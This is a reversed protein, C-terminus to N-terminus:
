AGHTKRVRDTALRHIDARVMEETQRVKELQLAQRRSAMEHAVAEADAADIDCSRVDMERLSKSSVAAERLVQGCDRGFSNCSVNLSRLTTNEVAVGAIARASDIGLENSSIDLDLLTVNERVGGLITEGGADGLRNLRLSLSTLTRSVALADGIAEAGASRIENDGLDLFTLELDKQLLVLGIASAGADGIRNHSLDLRKLLKNHVLGGAICKCLDDDIENEPLSLSTLCRSTRLVKQIHMADTQKMGAMDPTVQVSANLVGFSVAFENLHQLKSFMEYIDFHYRQKSLRVAYIESICLTYLQNLTEEDKENTSINEISMLQEELNRELFVRKWGGLKPPQLTLNGTYEALQGVSWRNKCCAEWYEDTNIRKVAVHLPLDTRLQDTILKYLPPDKTRLADVDPQQEFTNALVQACIEKLSPTFYAAQIEAPEVGSGYQQERKFERMRIEHFPNTARKAKPRSGSSSHM